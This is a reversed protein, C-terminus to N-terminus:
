STKKWIRKCLFAMIFFFFQVNDTLNETIIYFTGESDLNNKIIYDFFSFYLFMGLNAFMIGTVIWFMPTTFFDIVEDTILLEAIYIACCFFSFLIGLIREVSNYHFYDRPVLMIWSLTLLGAAIAISQKYVPMVVAKYCFFAYFGYEILIFTNLIFHDSKGTFRWYVYASVKTFVKALMFWTFVRFWRPEANGYFVLSVILAIFLTFSGVIIDQM